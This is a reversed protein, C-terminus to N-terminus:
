APRELFPFASALYWPWLARRFNRETMSFTGVALLSLNGMLGGKKTVNGPGTTELVPVQRKLGKEGLQTRSGLMCARQETLPAPPLVRFPKPFSGRIVKGEVFTCVSM